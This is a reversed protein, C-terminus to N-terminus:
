TRTGDSRRLARVVRSLFRKCRLAAGRTFGYPRFRPRWKYSNVNVGEGLMMRHTADLIVERTAFESTHGGSWRHDLQVQGGTRWLDVIPRVQERHVGHDDRCSQVFLRPLSKRSRVREDVLARIERTLYQNDASQTLGDDLIARTAREVFRDSERGIYYAGNEDAGYADCLFLWDLSEDSSLMRLRHFYGGFTARYKPADGWDGFFASFHIGLERHGNDFYVYHFQRGEPDTYVRRAAEFPSDAM